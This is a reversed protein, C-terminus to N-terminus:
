TVLESGIGAEGVLGAGQFSNPNPIVLISTYNLNAGPYLLITQPSSNLLFTFLPASPTHSATTTNSSTSSSRISSATTSSSTSISSSSSTSSAQAGQGSRPYSIGIAGGIVVVVLTSIALATRGIAPRDNRLFVM